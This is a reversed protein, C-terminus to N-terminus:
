NRPSATPGSPTNLSGSKANPGRQSYNFQGGLHTGSGGLNYEVVGATANLDRVTTGSTFSVIPSLTFKEKVNVVLGGDRAAVDVHDFLSLNRIRREFEALEANTFRAPTPRPLLAWITAEKTHILGRVRTYEILVPGLDSNAQVASAARASTVPFVCLVLLYRLMLPLCLFVARVYHFSRM